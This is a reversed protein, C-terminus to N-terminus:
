TINSLDADATGGQPITNSQPNRFLHGTALRDLLIGVRDTLAAPSIPKLLYASVGSNIAQLIIRRSTEASIMVIASHDYSRSERIRLVLDMGHMGPMSEDLFVINFPDNNRISSEIITLAATGDHAIIIQEIGIHRLTKHVVERFLFHDDVILAKITLKM